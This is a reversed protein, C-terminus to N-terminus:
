EFGIDRSVVSDEGDQNAIGCAWGAICDVWSEDDDLSYINDEFREECEVQADPVPNPHRSLYDPLKNQGPAFSSKTHSSM